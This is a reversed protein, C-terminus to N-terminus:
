SKSRLKELIGCLHLAQTKADDLANHYTGVRAPQDVSVMNKMTRYCRNNWFAWPQKKGLKKYAEQLMANDFDSGNGWICSNWHAFNSFKDLAVDITVPTLEAEEIVRRAEASQRSWWEQTSPDITMGIERCSRTNIVTYMEDTFLRTNPDFKVAGISLIVSNPSTGLTELDLMIPDMNKKPSTM